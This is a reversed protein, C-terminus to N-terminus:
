FSIFSYYVADNRLSRCASPIMKSNVTNVRLKMQLGLVNRSRILILYPSKFYQSRKRDRAPKHEKYAVELRPKSLISVSRCDSVSLNKNTAPTILDVVSAAKNSEDM